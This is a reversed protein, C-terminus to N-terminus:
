IIYNQMIIKIKLYMYVCTTSLLFCACLDCLFGELSGHYIHARSDTYTGTFGRVYATRCNIYM